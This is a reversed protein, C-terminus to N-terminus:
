FGQRIGEQIELCRCVEGGPKRLSLAAAAATRVAPSLLKRERRLDPSRGLGLVGVPLMAIGDARRYAYGKGCIVALCAPPGSRQDDVAQSFRLLNTAASSSESAAGAPGASRRDSGNEVAESLDQLSLGPGAATSAGWGDAGAAVGCGDLLRSCVPDDAAPAPFRLTRSRHERWCWPRIWWGPRGPVPMAGPPARRQSGMPDLSKV